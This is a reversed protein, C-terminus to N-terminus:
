DKRPIHQKLAGVVDVILQFSDYMQEHTTKSNRYEGIGLSIKQKIVSIGSTVMTAPHNHTTDNRTRDAKKFISSRKIELLARRLAPNVTKLKNIATKFSVNENKNEDLTLGYCQFVIHGVTDFTSFLKYYYVDAYYDFMIKRTTHAPETFHPFLDYSNGAKGPSIFHPDDPIGKEYYFTAFVYSMEVDTIRDWLIEAWHAIQENIMWIRYPNERLQYQFQHSSYTLTRLPIQQYIREYDETTPHESLM